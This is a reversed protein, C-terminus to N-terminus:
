EITIYVSYLIALGTLNLTFVLGASAFSEMLITSIGSPCAPWPNKAVFSLSTTPRALFFESQGSGKAVEQQPMSNIAVM